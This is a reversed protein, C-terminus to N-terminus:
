NIGRIGAPHSPVELQKDSQPKRSDGGHFSLRHMCWSSWMKKRLVSAEKGSFLIKQETEEEAFQRKRLSM